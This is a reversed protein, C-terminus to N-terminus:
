GDEMQGNGWQKWSMTWHQIVPIWHTTCHSAPSLSSSQSAGFPVQYLSTKNCHSSTPNSRGSERQFMFFSKGLTHFHSPFGLLFRSPLNHLRARLAPLSHCAMGTRYPVFQNATPDMCADVAQISPQCRTGILTTLNSQPQIHVRVAEEANLTGEKQTDTERDSQTLSPNVTCWQCDVLADMVWGDSSQSSSPNQESKSTPKSGDKGEGTWDERKERTERWGTLSQGGGGDLWKEVWCLTTEM